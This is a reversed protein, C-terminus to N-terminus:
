QPLNPVQLSKQNADKKRKELYEDVARRIHEAVTLGTEESIEKLLELQQEPLHINTRKM